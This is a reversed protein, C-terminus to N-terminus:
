PQGYYDVVFSLNTTQENRPQGYYAFFFGSKDDM